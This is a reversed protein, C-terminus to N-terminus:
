SRRRKRRPGSRRPSRGRGRTTIDFLVFYILMEDVEDIWGGEADLVRAAVALMELAEPHGGPFSSQVLHPLNNALGFRHVEEMRNKAKEAISPNAWSWLFTGAKPSVTGVVALRATVGHKPFTLTAQELDWEYRAGELGHRAKWERNKRDLRRVANRSWAPWNTM